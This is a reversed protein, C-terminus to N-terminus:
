RLEAIPVLLASIAGTASLLGSVFMPPSGDPWSGGISRPLYCEPQLRSTSCAKLDIGFREERTITDGVVKRFLLEDIPNSVDSSDSHLVTVWVSGDVGRVLGSVGFSETIVTSSGCEGGSCGYIEGGVGMLDGATAKLIARQPPGGNTSRTVELKAVKSDDDPFLHYFTGSKLEWVVEGVRMRQLSDGQRGVALFAQEDAPALRAFTANEYRLVVTGLLAFVDEARKFLGAQARLVSTTGPM